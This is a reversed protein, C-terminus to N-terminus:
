NSCTQIAQKWANGETLEQEFCQITSAANRSGECLDITNKWLWETGGGWNVGGHMVRKFCAAPEGSNEAGRCLRELNTPSWQKSGKYNWAIKNQVQESCSMSRDGYGLTLKAYHITADDAYRMLVNGSWNTRNRVREFPYKLINLIQESSYHELLNITVERRELLDSPRRTDFGDIDTVLIGRLGAIQIMDTTTGSGYPTYRLVLTATHIIEPEATRFARWQARDLLFSHFWVTREETGEGMSPGRGYGSIFFGGNAISATPPGIPPRVYESEVVSVLQGANATSIIMLSMIFVSLVRISKLLYTM